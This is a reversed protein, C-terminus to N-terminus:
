PESSPPVISKIRMYTVLNGYHENNHAFNQILRSIRPSQSHQGNPGTVEIMERASADTLASYVGDCYTWAGNLAKLLDAKATVKEFDNGQNPNKEGKAEACWLYNFNALHGIIQGFTRVETQTGPRMNYFDEPVKEASKGINNRNRTYADRLWAALRNAPPAPEGTQAASSLSLSLGWLAGLVVKKMLMKGGPFEILTRGDKV